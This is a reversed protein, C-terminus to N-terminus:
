RNSVVRRDHRQLARRGLHMAAAGGVAAATGGVLAAVFAAPHWAGAALLLLGAVMLTGVLILLCIIDFATWALTRDVPVPAPRPPNPQTRRPLDSVLEVLDLVTQARM